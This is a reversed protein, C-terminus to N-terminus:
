IWLRGLETRELKRNRSWQPGDRPNYNISLDSHLIQTACKLQDSPLISKMFCFLASKPTALLAGCKQSSPDLTVLNGV